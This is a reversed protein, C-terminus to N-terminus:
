TNIVMLKTWYIKGSLNLRLFYVGNQVQNRFKDRGNWVFEGEGTHTYLIPSHLQVIHTMDFDFVDLKVNSNLSEDYYVVRVHGDSNYQNVEDIYFPNPYASFKINQNDNSTHNWSRYMYWSAGEDYSYFIGDPSSAWLINQFNVANYIVDSLIMQNNLDSIEYKHWLNINGSDTKYLGLNTSAYIDENDFSLDYVIAGINKFFSVIQWNDGQNDTYSLNHPIASNLSPDWSIAWLRNVNNFNQNKIGIVWRDGMGNSENYHTWDICNSDLNIIGKNIGDGTGVWIIHNDVFVSFAKHNDNGIPPNVPDYEYQEVDIQNCILESQNDMPLPILEWEPDNLTYNFRRIGGAFSTAYIFDGHMSLDYSINYIDTTIAKFILSDQDGWSVYTYIEGSSVTDIPQHIYNWSNGSDFSWSIGTGMPRYRGDEYISKAGSIAMLDENIIFAPSGGLPLNNNNISFFSNSDSYSNNLVFSLGSGTRLWLTDNLAAMEYVSNSQIDYLLNDNSVGIYYYDDVLSSFLLNFICLSLFKM